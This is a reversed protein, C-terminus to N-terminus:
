ARRRSKRGATPKQPDKSECNELTKLDKKPIIIAVTTDYRTLKIREGRASRRVVNAFNKRATAAPIRYTMSKLMPETITQTL